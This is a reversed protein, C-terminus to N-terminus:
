FMLTLFVRPVVFIYTFNKILHTFLHATDLPDALIDKCQSWYPSQSITKKKM